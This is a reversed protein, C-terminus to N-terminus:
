SHLCGHCVTWVAGPDPLEPTQRTRDDDGRGTLHDRDRRAGGEGDEGPVLAGDTPLAPDEEAVPDGPADGVVAGEDGPDGICGPSRTLAADMM